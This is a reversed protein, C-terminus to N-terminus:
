IEATEAALWEATEEDLVPTLTERVWKHYSNVYSLEDDTLLEKVIAEREYPVCTLPENVIFGEDDNKFLVMNEIRIGFAGEIYVGPENTVDMGAELVAEQMGPAFRWRLNQPGEHVNLIYGVGHGTGHNFDLGLEWLPERALYDPNVGTCGHLFHAAGLNLNGRLVATYYRKQDRSLEGLSITRTIDTTGQLYQGGTDLLLFSMPELHSNSGTSPDYHVIAGHEGYAAIPALSQGLYNEGEKRFEELKRCVDLETIDPVPVKAM